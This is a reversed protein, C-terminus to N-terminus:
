GLVRVLAAVTASVAVDRWRDWWSQPVPNDEDPLFQRRPIHKWGDQHTSAYLVNTGVAVEGPNVEFKQQSGGEISPEAYRGEILEGPSLSNLLIGTDRLIEVERGGLVEVKTRGMINTARVGGAIAARRRAEGEPLSHRLRAYARQTEAKQIRKRLRAEASARPGVRRNAITRPSLPPWQIGMADTGGRAKMIFSEKIDTLAAYGIASRFGEGIWGKDADNGSLIGPLSNLLKSLDARSGRFTVSAM